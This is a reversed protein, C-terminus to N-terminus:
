FPNKPVTIFLRAGEGPASELKLSGRILELRERLGQLGYHSNTKIRDPTISDFGRGNDGIYLNAQQAALRVRVTAQSAQAHKQINTLGEQAARYLTTLSQKSFGQESGEIELEISFQSSNMNDVLNTLAKSLSFPEQSSRLASVSRRVEKLAESALRKSDRVAQDAEEPKRDRFAIAKELQVNIVTIYHGLSDHIDRALRNREETTALEAVQGAYDQLQRHSVELERLLKETQVRSSREQRILYAISLIFVLMLLFTLHFITSSEAVKYMEPRQIELTERWRGTLYIVWVIGSLGYSSGSLFFFSFPILLFLFTGGGVLGFGDCFSAAIIIAMRILLLSITIRWTFQKGFYRYELRDITILVLIAIVIITGGLWPYAIQYIGSFLLYGYVVLVGMYLVAALWDIPRPMLWQQWNALRPPSTQTMIAVEEM